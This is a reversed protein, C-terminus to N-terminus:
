SEGRGKLMGLASMRELLRTLARRGKRHSGRLCLTADPHDHIPDQADPRLILSGRIAGIGDLGWLLDAVERILAEPGTVVLRPGPASGKVSMLPPHLDSTDPRQPLFAHTQTNM